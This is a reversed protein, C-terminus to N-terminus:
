GRKEPPKVAATEVSKPKPKEDEAVEEGVGLEVLYRAARTPLTLVLDIPKGNIEAAIRVRAM